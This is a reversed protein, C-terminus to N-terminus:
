GDQSLLAVAVAPACRTAWEECDPAANALTAFRLTQWGLPHAIAEIRAAGIGATVIPAGPSVPAAALVDTIAARVDALQRD